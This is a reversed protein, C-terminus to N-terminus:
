EDAKSASEPAAASKAVMGALGNPTTTINQAPTAKPQVTKTTDATDTVPEAQLELRSLYMEYFDAVEPTEYIDEDVQRRKELLVVQAEQPTMGYTSILYALAVAASRGKGAKCHVYVSANPKRPQTEELHTKIWQAGSRCLSIANVASQLMIANPVEFDDVGMHAHEVGLQNYLSQLGAFEACMNLVGTVNEKEVLERVVAEDDPLAGIVLREDIRNYWALGNAWGFGYVVAKNLGLTLNFTARQFFSGFGYLEAQPQQPPSSPGSPPPAQATAM